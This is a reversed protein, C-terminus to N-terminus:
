VVNVHVSALIRKNSTKTKTQRPNGELSRELFKFILIYLIIIKGTTSQSHDRANFSSRLIPINSFMIMPGFSILNALPSPTGIM